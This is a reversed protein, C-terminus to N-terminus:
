IHCNTNQKLKEGEASANEFLYWASIEGRFVESYIFVLFM